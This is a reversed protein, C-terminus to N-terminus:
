RTLDMAGMTRGDGGNDGIAKTATLHPLMKEDRGYVSHRFNTAGEEDVWATWDLIHVPIKAPLHLTTQRGSSALRQISARNWRSDGRLLYEALEAPKEIRICGSSFDRVQKNFDGRAPTDHLYINFRNPFMFKMRGLPNSPGPDQVFQYPAGRSWDISRPDITRGGAGVVRIGRSSLYGPNRRAQPVVDHAAIYSPITWTPNMEIYSLEGSFVPTRRYQQGIVTKMQLVPQDGEMVALSFDALNVVVHREGLDNPLWRWRELNALIQGIRFGVPVNLAEVTAPGAVGDADLGHRRQFRRLAQEVTQDFLRLDASADLRLEGTTVLRRRLEAVRESRDGRKLPPGSSITNWGGKKEIARYTALSQRLRDYARQPPRLSALAATVEGRELAHRLVAVLDVEPRATRWESDVLDPSLRGSSLHAAYTLFADTLLLDIDALLWHRTPDDLSARRLSALAQLHYEEAVLGEEGARALFTVLESAAEIFRGERVWAPQNGRQQYFSPLDTGAQILRDGVRLRLPSGGATISTEIRERLLTDPSREAAAAPSHAVFILACFMSFLLSDAKRMPDTRTSTM